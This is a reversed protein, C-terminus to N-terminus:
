FIGAEKMRTSMRKYDKGFFNQSVGLKELENLYEDAKVEDAEVGRGYRYATSLNNYAYMREISGSKSDNIVKEFHKVAKDYNLVGYKKNMMLLGQALHYVSSDDDTILKLCEIEKNEDYVGLGKDSYIRYREFNVVNATFSISSPNSKIISDYRDCCKLLSEGDLHSGYWGMLDGVADSDGDDCLKILEALANVSDQPVTLEGFLRATIMRRISYADNAEAALEYYMRASSEDKSTGLGAEHCRAITRWLDAMSVDPNDQLSQLIKFGKEQNSFDESNLYPDILVNSCDNGSAIAKEGWEIAKENSKETGLGNVYMMALNRMGVPNGMSAASNAWKFAADYDAEVGNNGLYLYSLEAMSNPEGLFAAKNLTELGEKIYGKNVLWEGYAAMCMPNNAVVAKTGCIKIEAEANPIQDEYTALLGLYIAMGMYDGSKLGTELAKKGYSVAKTMNQPVGNTGMAYLTALGIQLEYSGKNAQKEFDKIQAATFIINPDLGQIQANAFQGVVSLVLVLLITKLLKM